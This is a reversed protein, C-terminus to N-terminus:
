AVAVRELDDGDGRLARGLLGADGDVVADLLDVALRDGLALEGFPAAPEALEGDAGADLEGRAAAVGRVVGDEDEGVGDGVVRHDLRLRRSGTRGDGHYDRRPPGM